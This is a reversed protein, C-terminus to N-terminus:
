NFPSYKKCIKDIYSIKRQMESFTVDKGKPLNRQIEAIAKYVNTLEFQLTLATRALRAVDKPTMHKFFIHELPLFANKIISVSNMFERVEKCLHM